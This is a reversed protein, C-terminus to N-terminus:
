QMCKMTFVNKKKGCCQWCYVWCLRDTLTKFKQDYLDCEASKLEMDCSTGLILLVVGWLFHLRFWWSMFWLMLTRDSQSMNIICCGWPNNQASLMSIQREVAFFFSFFLLFLLLYFCCYRVCLLVCLYIIFDFLLSVAGILHIHVQYKFAHGHLKVPHFM